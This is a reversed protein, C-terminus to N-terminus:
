RWRPIKLHHGSKDTFRFCIGECKPLCANRLKLIISAARGLASLATKSLYRPRLPVNGSQAITEGSLRTFAGQESKLRFRVPLLPGGSKYPRGGGQPTRFSAYSSFEGTSKGTLPFETGSVPESSVAVVVLRMLFSLEEPGNFVPWPCAIPTLKATATGKSKPKITTTGTGPCAM